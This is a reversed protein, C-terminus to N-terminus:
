DDDHRSGACPLTVRVWAGTSARNGAQLTGAHHEVILTSLWLGIGSGVDSDTLHIQGLNPLVAANIGPGNDRVEIVCQDHIITSEIEILGPQPQCALANIANSLLNIFVSELQTTEGRVLCGLQGSRQVVIGQVGLRPSLVQLATDLLKDLSLAEAVNNRPRFVSELQNMIKTSRECEECLRDVQVQLDQFNNERLQSQLSQSTLLLTSLPQRLEHALSSALGSAKHTRTVRSVANLLQRKEQVLVQLVENRDLTKEMEYTMIALYTLANAVVWVWRVLVMFAPESYISSVNATTESFFLLMWLRSLVCLFEVMFTTCIMLLQASHIQRYLQWSSWTLYGLLGAIISQAFGARVIYPFLERSVEFSVVYALLAGYVWPPIHIKGTRWFRLQLTLSVYSLVFAFNAVTLAPRGLNPSLGYALYATSSFVLGWLWFSEGPRWGHKLNLVVSNALCAALIVAVTFFILQDGDM